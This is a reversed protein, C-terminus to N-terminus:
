ENFTVATPMSRAPLKSFPCGRFISEVEEFDEKYEKGIVAKRLNKCNWFTFGALKVGSPINVSTLCNCDQFAQTEIEKLAPTLPVQTIGSNRFASQEIKAVGSPLNVKALAKCDEFMSTPVRTMNQPLRVSTLSSCGMFVHFGLEDVRQPLVVSTLARSECFMGNSIKRVNDPISITTIRSMSAFAGSGIATVSSPISFSPIDTFAFAGDGISTIGEPITVSSVKLKYFANNGIKKVRFTRGAYKITAPVDYAKGRSEEQDLGELEASNLQANVKFWMEGQQCLCEDSSNGAYVLVDLTKTTRDISELWEVVDKNLKPYLASLDSNVTRKFEEREMNFALDLKSLPNRNLLAGVATRIANYRDALEGRTESYRWMVPDGTPMGGDIWKELMEHEAVLRANSLEHMTPQAGAWASQKSFEEPPQPTVGGVRGPWTTKRGVGECFKVTITKTGPHLKSGQEMVSAADHSPSGNNDTQPVIGKTTKKLLQEGKKKLKSFFGQAPVETTGLALCFAFLLLLRRTNM